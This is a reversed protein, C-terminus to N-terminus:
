SAADADDTQISDLLMLVNWLYIMQSLKLLVNQDMSRPCMDQDIMTKQNRSYLEVEPTKARENIYRSHPSGHTYRGSTTTWEKGSVSGSPLQQKSDKRADVVDHHMMEMDTVPTNDSPVDSGPRETFSSRHLRSSNPMSDQKQQEPTLSDPPRRALRRDRYKLIEKLMNSKLGSIASPVAKCQESGLTQVQEVQSKDPKAQTLGHQVTGSDFRAGSIRHVHSFGMAEIDSNEKRRDAPAAHQEQLWCMHSKRPRKYPWMALGFKRCVSKFATLGLGIERCAENSPLHFHQALEEYTIDSPYRGARLLLLLLKGM